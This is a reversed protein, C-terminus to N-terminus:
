CQSVIRRAEPWVALAACEILNAANCAVSPAQPFRSRHSAPSSALKEEETEREESGSVIQYRCRCWADSQVGLVDSRQAGCVEVCHARVGYRLSYCLMQSLRM